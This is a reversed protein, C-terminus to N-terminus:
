ESLYNQPSGELILENEDLVRELMYGISFGKKDSLTMRPGVRGLLEGSRSYVAEGELAEFSRM